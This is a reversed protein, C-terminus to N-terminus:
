HISGTEPSSWEIGCLRLARTRQPSPHSQVYGVTKGLVELVLNEQYVDHGELIAGLQSAGCAVLESSKKLSVPPKKFYATILESVKPINASGGGLLLEDFDPDSIKRWKMSRELHGNISTFLDACLSELTLRTVVTTFNVNMSLNDIHVQTSQM